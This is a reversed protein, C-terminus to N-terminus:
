HVAFSYICKLCNLSQIFSTTYSCFIRLFLIFYKLSYQFFILSTASVFHQLSLFDATLKIEFSIHLNITLLM